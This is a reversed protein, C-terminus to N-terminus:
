HVEQFAGETLPRALPMLVARTVVASEGSVPSMRLSSARVRLMVAGSASASSFVAPM